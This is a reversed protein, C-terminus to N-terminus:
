MGKDVHKHLLESKTKIMYCIITASTLKSFSNMRILDMLLSSFGEDSSSVSQLILVHTFKVMSLAQSNINVLHSEYDDVLTNKKLEIEM